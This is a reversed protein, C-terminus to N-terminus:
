RESRAPKFRFVEYVPRGCEDNIIELGKRIYGLEGAMKRLRARSGPQFEAAETHGVFVHRPDSIWNRM